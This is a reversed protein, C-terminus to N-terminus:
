WSRQSTCVHCPSRLPGGGLQEWISVICIGCTETSIRHRCIDADGEPCVKSFPTISLNSFCTSKQVLPLSVRQGVSLAAAVNGACHIRCALGAEAVLKWTHPLAELIRGCVKVLAWDGVDGLRDLATMLPIPAEGPLGLAQVEAGNGALFEVIGLM